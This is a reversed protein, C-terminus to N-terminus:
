RTYNGITGDTVVETKDAFLDKIDTFIEGLTEGTAKALVALVLGVIVILPILWDLLAM